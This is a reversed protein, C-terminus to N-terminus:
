VPVESETVPVGTRTDPRKDRHLVAKGHKQGWKYTPSIYRVKTSKTQDVQYTWGDALLATYVHEAASMHVIHGSVNAFLRTRQHRQEAISLASM